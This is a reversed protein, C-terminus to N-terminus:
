ISHGCMNDVQHLSCTCGSRHSWTSSCQEHTCLHSRPLCPPNPCSYSFLSQRVESYPVPPPRPGSLLGITGPTTPISAALNNADNLIGLAQMTSAFLWWVSAM